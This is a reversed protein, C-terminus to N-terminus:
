EEMQKVSEAPLADGVVKPGMLTFDFNGEGLTNKLISIVQKCRTQSDHPGNVFYPKGDKGFEFEATSEEAKIDGFILRAKNYDPHASLGCNRAFAVAGEVLKRADAPEMPEPTYRMNHPAFKQSYQFRGLISCFADKVGLCYVDILFVSVAINGDPLKRSVLVQGMGTEFMNDGRWCEYIPCNAAEKMEAVLGGGSKRAIDQKKSKRKAKKQELKKQRKKPDQSM